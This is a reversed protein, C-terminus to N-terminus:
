LEAKIFDAGREGIMMTPLNINCRPIEPMVSADVIYLNELGRVRLRHDVVAMADDPSGMRCTGSPHYGTGHFSMVHDRLLNSDAVTAPEPLLLECRTSRALVEVIAAAQGVAALMLQVDPECSLHRHKIVPRQAPDASDLGVYGRSESVNVEIFLGTLGEMNFLEGPYLSIKLDDLELEPRSRTKLMAAMRMVKHDAPYDMDLTLLTVPHDMLNQGVGALHHIPDIGAAVLDGSAGVGSRLLLAPTNYAGAALVVRRARIEEGGQLVVGIAKGDGVLVHDVLTDARLSFNGRPRAAAIYTLLVSQRVGDRLNRPLPGVGVAGPLNQDAVYEHGLEQCAAVFLEEEARLPLQRGVAIPGAHGHSAQDGFDLDNEMRKFYPLCSAWDWGRAGLEVWRDYDQPQGRLAVTANVASSGGVVKGRSLNLGVAPDNYDWDYAAVGSGLRVHLIEDPVDDGPDAGAELLLVRLSPDETLRSAVVGGGSGSGVVIVDYEDAMVGGNTGTRLSLRRAPRKAPGAALGRGDLDGPISPISPRSNPRM